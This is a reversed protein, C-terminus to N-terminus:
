NRKTQEDTRRDADFLQAVVFLIKTFSSKSYKRIHISFIWNQNFDLLFSRYNVHLGVYM